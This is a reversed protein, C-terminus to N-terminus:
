RCTQLAEAPTDEHVGVQGRTEMRQQEDKIGSKIGALNKRASEECHAYTRVIASVRASATNTFLM